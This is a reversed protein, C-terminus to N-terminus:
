GESLAIGGRLQGRNRGVCPDGWTARNLGFGVGVKEPFQALAQVHPCHSPCSTLVSKHEPPLHPHSTLAPPPCAQPNPSVQAGLNMMWELSKVELNQPFPHPSPSAIAWAEPGQLPAM